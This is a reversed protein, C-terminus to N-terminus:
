GGLAIVAFKVSANNAEFYLYGDSQKWGLNKMPGFVAYEGAGLSYASVDESRGFPDDVSTITVTYPSGGSNYALVLDNNTAVVQNKDSADAATFTFDAANAVSYDGYAGLATKATITTRAM